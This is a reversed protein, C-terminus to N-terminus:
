PGSLRAIGRSPSSLSTYSNEAFTIPVSPLSIDLPTCIAGTSIGSPASYSLSLPRRVIVFSTFAPSITKSAYENLLGDLLSSFVTFIEILAGFFISNESPSSLM